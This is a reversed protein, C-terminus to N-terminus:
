LGNAICRIWLGTARTVSLNGGNDARNFPSVTDELQMTAAHGDVFFYNYRLDSHLVDNPTAKNYQSTVGTASFHSCTGGINLVETAGILKSPNKIMGLKITKPATSTDDFQLGSCSEVSHTHGALTGNMSTGGVSNISYSRRESNKVPATGRAANDNPCNLLNLLANTADRETVVKIGTKGLLGSNALVAPWRFPVSSDGQNKPIWYDQNDGAYMLLASGLGKLKSMCSIKRGKERAKSLAPLLMGALIAIIAIVVLLEILTFRKFKWEQKKM